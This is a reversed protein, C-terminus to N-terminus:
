EEDDRSFKDNSYKGSSSTIKHIQAPSFGEEILIQRSTEELISENLLDHADVGFGEAAPRSTEDYELPIPQAQETNRASRQPVITQAYTHSTGTILLTTVIGGTALIRRRKKM